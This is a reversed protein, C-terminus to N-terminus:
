ATDVQDRNALGFFARFVGSLLGRIPLVESNASTHDSHWSDFMGPSLKQHLHLGQIGSFDLYFRQGNQLANAMKVEAEAVLARLVKFGNRDVNSLPNDRAYEYLNWSQPNLTHQDAFPKDPSLFRGFSSADYRAGFYDLGSEFDRPKGTFHLFSWDGVGYPYTTASITLGDGFPLSQITEYQSPNSLSTRARETGLWDSHSFQIGNGLTAVHRSGAWINGMWGTGEIKALIRGSQDYIYEWTGALDGDSGNVKSVKEIRNGDSDYTYTATNGNDVSVLRNEADYTYAHTGDNLLNGAADYSYGDMRNNNQPSTPSNGTFTLQMSNPGNQQWRNGFRDAHQM